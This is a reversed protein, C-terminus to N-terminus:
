RRGLRFEADGLLFRVSVTGTGGAELERENDDEDAVIVGNTSFLDTVIWEGEVRELRAHTKSVTRTPDELAVLQADAAGTDAVPQRGLVIVESRLAIPEGGTPTLQWESRRRRAVVTREIDDDDDDAEGFGVANQASVSQLASRPEGATPSGGVASVEDTLEPFVDSRAQHPTSWSVPASPEPQRVVPPADRHASLGPVFAIVGDDSGSTTPPPAIPAAPPRPPAPQPTAPASAPAPPTAPFSPPAGWTPGASPAPAGQPGWAGPARNPPAPPTPPFVAAGPAGLPAVSVPRIPAGGYGGPAPAAAPAPAAPRSGSAPTGGPRQAGLWRAPGFGAISAWLPLILTGLVTMGAGFGFGPNIRNLSIALIVLFGLNVVPVVALAALWPNFGGWRLVTGVNLLPVWAKWTEDGMKRFVASLAFGTWVYILVALLGGVLFILSLTGTDPMVLAMAAHHAFNSISDM